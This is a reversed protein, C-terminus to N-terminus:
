PWGKRERGSGRLALIVLDVEHKRLVRRIERDLADSEPHTKGNLLYAPIGARRARNLAEASRNNCIVVKAEADLRGKKCADIIAQM